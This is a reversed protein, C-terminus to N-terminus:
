GLLKVSPLISAGSTRNASGTSSASNKCDIYPATSRSTTPRKPAGASTEATEVPEWMMIVSVLRTELRAMPAVRELEIKM